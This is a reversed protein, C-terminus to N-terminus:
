KGQGSEGWRGRVEDSYKFEVNSVFRFERLQTHGIARGVCSGLSFPGCAKGPTVALEVPPPLRGSRPSAPSPAPAPAAAAQAAPAAAAAQAASPQTGGSEDSPPVM